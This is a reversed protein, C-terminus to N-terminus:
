APNGAAAQSNVYREVYDSAPLQMIGFGVVMILLLTPVMLGVRKVIYRLM